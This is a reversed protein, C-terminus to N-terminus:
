PAPEATGSELRVRLAAVLEPGRDLPLLPLEIRPGSWGRALRGLQRDNVARRERWLELMARDEARERTEGADCPPYLGNVLVLDPERELRKRMASILELTEQVPMEEASTALVVGCRLPDGVFAALEAGMHGIPGDRIAESVLLPAELLTLGHGSAPADLVVLDVADGDRRGGGAAARAHYILAMEKLGPAGEAFHTYVPSELVRRSIAGIRLRERVLRDLVDRARLNQVRVGPAAEVARGGSPPIDLLAHLSERSDTELLLVRRDVAALALALTAALTTKGVGGKGTVVLLQRSALRHIPEYL